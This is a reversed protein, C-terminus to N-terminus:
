RVSEGLSVITEDDIPAHLDIALVREPIRSLIEGRPFDSHHLQEACQAMPASGGQAALFAILREGDAPDIPRGANAVIEDITSKSAMQDLDRDTILQWDIGCKQYTMAVMALRQRLKRAKEFRYMAEEDNDNAPAPPKVLDYPKYEVRLERHGLMVLFDPTYRVPKEKGEVLFRIQEPQGFYATVSGHMEFIRACREEGASEHAVHQDNKWSWFAGVKLPRHGTIIRRVPENGPLRLREVGPVLPQWVERRQKLGQNEWNNKQDIIKM